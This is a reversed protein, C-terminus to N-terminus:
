DSATWLVVKKGGCDVQLQTTIDGNTAMIMRGLRYEVKEDYLYQM